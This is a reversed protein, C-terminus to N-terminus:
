LDSSYLRWCTLAKQLETPNTGIDVCKPAYTGNPQIETILFVTPYNALQLSVFASAQNLAPLIVWSSNAAGNWNIDAVPGVQVGGSSTRTLFANRSGELQYVKATNERTSTQSGVTSPKLTFTTRTDLNSVMGSQTLFWGQGVFSELRIKQTGPAPFVLDRYSLQPTLDIQNFEIPEGKALRQTLIRNDRVLQIIQNNSTTAFTSLTQPATYSINLVINKIGYNNSVPGGNKWATQAETQNKPFTFTTNQTITKSGDSILEIIPIGSQDVPNFDALGRLLQFKVMSIFQPNNKNKFFAFVVTGDQTLIQIIASESTTINGSLELSQVSITIQEERDIQRLRIIEMGDNMQFTDLLIVRFSDVNVGQCNSVFEKKKIGYCREIAIRQTEKDVTTSNADTYVTNLTARAAVVSDKGANSQKYTAIAANIQDVAEQNVENGRLPAWSGAPQCTRYPFEQQIEPLALEDNRIGSYRDGIAQYTAPSPGTAYTQRYLQDLCTADLPGNKNQVTLAGDQDVLTECPGIIERGILRLSALNMEASSQAPSFSAPLGVGRATNRLTKLYDILETPTREITKASDKFRLAAAGEPKTPHWTGATTGMGVSEFLKKMCDDTLGNTCAQFEVFNLLNKSTYLPGTPCKPLDEAYEPNLFIGPIKCEVTFLSKKHDSDWLWYQDSQVDTMGETAPKPELIRQSDAFTGNRSYYILPDTIANSGDANRIVTNSIMTIFREAPINRRINRDSSEFQMCVGRYQPSRIDGHQSYRNEKAIASLGDENQLPLYEFFNKVVSSTLTRIDVISPTLHDLRPKIGYCWVGQPSGDNLRQVGVLGHNPIQRDTYNAYQHITYTDYTNLAADVVAYGANRVQSGKAYADRLQEVTAIKCDFSREFERGNFVGSKIYTNLDDKRTTDTDTNFSVFFVEELGRPRHPFEQFFHLKIFDEPAANPLNITLTEGSIDSYQFSGFNAVGKGKTQYYVRNFGTGKPVAIRLQVSAQTSQQPDNYIYTTKDSQVCAVCSGSLDLDTQGDNSKGGGFGGTSGYEECNLKNAARICKDKEGLVFFYGPACTGLSPEASSSGSAYYADRDSNTFLLGGIFKMAAASFRSVVSSTIPSGDKICVGCGAITTNMDVIGGAANRTGLLNCLDARKFPNPRTETEGGATSTTLRNVSECRQAEQESLSTPPVREEVYGAVVKVQNWNNSPDYIAAKNQITGDAAVVPYASPPVPRSGDPVVGVTVLAKRIDENLEPLLTRAIRDKFARDANPKISETYGLRNYIQRGREYYRQIDDSEEAAPLVQISEPPKCTAQPGGQFPEHITEFVWPMGFWLIAAVVVLTLLLYLVHM